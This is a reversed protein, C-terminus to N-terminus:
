SVCSMWPPITHAWVFCTVPTLRVRLIPGLNTLLDRGSHLCAVRDKCYTITLGKMKSKASEWWDILFAFSHKRSRWSPWFSMILAVYEVEQLVSCNLKWVGPGRSMCLPIDCSLAVAYHDSFPCPVIECSCVSPLWFGPVGILDIRLAFAGDSCLWTFSRWTPHM